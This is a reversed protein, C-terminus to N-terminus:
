SGPFPPVKMQALARLEVHAVPQDDGLLGTVLTAASLGKQIAQCLEIKELDHWRRLSPFGRPLLQANWNCWRQEAGVLIQDSSVGLGMPLVVRNAVQAIAKGLEVLNPRYGLTRRFHFDSEPKVVGDVFAGVLILRLTSIERGFHHSIGAFWGARDFTDGIQDHGSTM